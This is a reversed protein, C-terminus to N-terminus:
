PNFIRKINRKIDECIEWTHPWDHRLSVFTTSYVRSATPKIKVRPFAINLIKMVERQYLPLASRQTEGSLVVVVRESNPLSHPASPRLM